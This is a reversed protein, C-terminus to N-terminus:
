ARRAPYLATVMNREVQGGFRWKAIEVLGDLLREREDPALATVNSYTAYLRRVGLPDLVLTWRIFEPADASFGGAAFDVLRAEGDLAHEPRGSLGASPSPAHAAFLGSTAEHFADHRQPDGFANWWLAVAGGPRLARHLKQLAPVADLWHFATASAALDFGGVPLDAEEFPAAIVDLRPDEHTTALFDALRADPEIALLRAPQHALLESTALGTGAGIEVIDIGARLGVRERLAQWVAEPYPPRSAHYNAPDGGFAARGFSRDLRQM